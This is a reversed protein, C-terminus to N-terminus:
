SSQWRHSFFLGQVSCRGFSCSGEKYSLPYQFLGLIESAWHCFWTLCPRCFVLSRVKMMNNRPKNPIEADEASERTQTAISKKVGKVIDRIM